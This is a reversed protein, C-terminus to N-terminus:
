SARVRAGGSCMHFDGAADDDACGHRGAQALIGATIRRTSEQTAAKRGLGDLGFLRLPRSWHFFSDRFLLGDGTPAFGDFFRGFFANRSLCSPSDSLFLFFLTLILHGKM